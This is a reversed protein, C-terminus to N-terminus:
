GGICCWHGAMSPPNHSGLGTVAASARCPAPPTWPASTRACPRLEDDCAVVLSPSAHIGFPLVAHVSAKVRGSANALRSSTAARLRMGQIAHSSPRPHPMSASRIPRMSAPSARRVPASRAAATQPAPRPTCPARSNCGGQEPMPRLGARFREQDEQDAGRRAIDLRSQCRHARMPMRRFSPGSREGCSAFSASSIQRPRIWGPRAQPGRPRSVM